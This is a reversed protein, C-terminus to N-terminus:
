ATDSPLLIIFICSLPRESNPVSVFARRQQSVYYIETAIKGPDVDIWYKWNESGIALRCQRTNSSHTFYYLLIRRNTYRKTM